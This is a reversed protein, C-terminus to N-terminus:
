LRATEYSSYYSEEYFLDPESEATESLEDNILVFSVPFCVTTGNGLLVYFGDEM